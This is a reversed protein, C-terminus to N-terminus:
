EAPYFIMIDHPNKNAKSMQRHDLLEVCTKGHRGESLNKLIAMHHVLVPLNTAQGSKLVDDVYEWTIDKVEKGDPVIPQKGDYPLHFLTENYTVQFEYVKERNLTGLYYLQDLNLRLGLEEYLERLAAKHTVEQLDVNGGPLSAASRGKEKTFLVQLKDDVIRSIFIKVANVSTLLDPIPADKVSKVYQIRKEDAYYFKMGYKEVLTASLGASALPLEVFFSVRQKAVEAFLDETDCRGTVTIIPDKYKPTRGMTFGRNKKQYKPGNFTKHAAGNIGIVSLLFLCAFFNKM